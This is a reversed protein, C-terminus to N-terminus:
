RVENPFLTTGVSASRYCSNGQRLIPEGAPGWIFPAPLLALFSPMWYRILSRICVILVM